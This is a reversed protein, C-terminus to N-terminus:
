LAFRARLRRWVFAAVVVVGAVAAVVAVPKVLRPGVGHTRHDIEDVLRELHARIADAERELREVDEEPGDTM